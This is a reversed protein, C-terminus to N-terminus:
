DGELQLHGEDWGWKIGGTLTVGHAAAFGVIYAARTAIEVEDWTVDGAEYAVIDIARGSQHNSKTTVGDAYTVVESQDVINGAADRGRAFLTQQEKTTRRGSIVAFDLWPPAAELAALVVAGLRPDVSDIHRRSRSSVVAM